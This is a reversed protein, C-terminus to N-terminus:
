LLASPNPQGDHRDLEEAAAHLPALLGVLLQRRQAFFEDCLALGLLHSQAGASALVDVAVPLIPPEDSLAIASLAAALVRSARRGAGKM